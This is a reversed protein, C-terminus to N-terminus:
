AEAGGGCSVAASLGVGRRRRQEDETESAGGGRDCAAGGLPDKEESM